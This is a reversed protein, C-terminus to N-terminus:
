QFGRLLGQPRSSNGKAGGGYPAVAESIVAAQLTGAMEAWVVKYPSFTYDGVDYIAYFPIDTAAIRGLRVAQEYQPKM